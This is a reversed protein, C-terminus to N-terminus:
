LAVKELIGKVFEKKKAAIDSDAAAIRAEMDKNLKAKVEASKADREAAAGALKTEISATTTARYDAVAKGAKERAQRIQETYEVQIEDAKTLMDTAESLTQLLKANREEMEDTVPAYWLTNLVAMMTLFIIAVFPLTLGFDFMGGAYAPLPAAALLVGSAALGM